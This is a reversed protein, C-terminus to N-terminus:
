IDKDPINAIETNDNKFHSSAGTSDNETVATNGNKFTKNKQDMREPIIPIARKFVSRMNGDLNRRVNEAKLIM